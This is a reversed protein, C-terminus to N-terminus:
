KRTYAREMREVFRRLDGYWHEPTFTGHTLEWIARKRLAFTSIRRRKSPRHWSKSDRVKYLKNLKILGYIVAGRVEPESPFFREQLEILAEDDARIVTHYPLRERVRGLYRCFLKKFNEKPVFRLLLNDLYGPTPM